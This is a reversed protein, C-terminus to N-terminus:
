DSIGTEDYDDPYDVDFPDNTNEASSAFEDEEFIESWSYARDSGVAKGDDSNNGFSSESNHEEFNEGSVIKYIQKYYSMLSRLGRLYGMDPLSPHAPPIRYASTNVDDGLVSQAFDIIHVKISRESVPSAGDYMLLISSGYMRYGNLDQFSNYLEELQKIIIPIKRVISLSDIGDFLFKALTK